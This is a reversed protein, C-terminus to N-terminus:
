TFHPIEPTEEFFVFQNNKFIRKTILSIFEERESALGYSFDKESLYWNTHM